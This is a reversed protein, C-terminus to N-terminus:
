VSRFLGVVKKNQVVPIYINKMKVNFLFKEIDSEFYYSDNIDNKKIYKININQLLLKRIDYDTLIGLLNNNQDTFCCCGIRKETMLLLIDTIDVCDNLIIKPIDTKIIDKIKLLNKGINGSLHNGKYKDLSIDTKLISVLINSFILHSMISNTPIKNIEGSIENQFPTVITKNCLEKFKSKKNCCIGITKVGIKKILPILNVLEATNGSNSFMILLDEKKMTGIDGHTSNLIDFYFCSFSICKLLDCCHKAINGSKGVGCFYINGNINKIIEVIKNINNLNINKIQYNFEERIENIISEIM